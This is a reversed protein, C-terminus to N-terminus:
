TSEEPISGETGDKTKSRAVLLAMQLMHDSPHGSRLFDVLTLHDRPPGLVAAVKFSSDHLVYDSSYEGTEARLGTVREDEGMVEAYADRWAPPIGECGATLKETLTHADLGFDGCWIPHVEEDAISSVADMIGQQVSVAPIAIEDDSVTSDFEKAYVAPPKSSCVLLNPGRQRSSLEVCAAGDIAFNRKLQYKSRKWVVANGFCVVDSGPLMMTPSFFVAYNNRGLEMYIHALHNATPEDDCNFWAPDSESCRNSFGVSQLGQLFMVDPGHFLLQRVIRGQRHEWTLVNPILDGADIAELVSAAKPSESHSLDSSVSYSVVVVHGAPLNQLPQDASPGHTILTKVVENQPDPAEIFRLNPIYTLELSPHRRAWAGRPADPDRDARIRIPLNDGTQVAAALLAPVLEPVYRDLLKGIRPLARLEPLRFVPRHGSARLYGSPSPKRGPDRRKAEIIGMLVRNNQLNFPEFYFALLKRLVTADKEYPASRRLKWSPNRGPSRSRGVIRGPVEVSSDGNKERSRRRSGSRRLDEGDSTLPERPQVGMGSPTLSFYVSNSMADCVTDFRAKGGGKVAFRKLAQRVTPQELVWQVAVEGDTELMGKAHSEGDLLEEIVRCLFESPPRLKVISESVELVESTSLLEKESIELVESTSLVEKLWQAHADPVCQGSSAAVVGSFLQAVDPCAMLERITVQQNTADPEDSIQGSVYKECVRNLQEAPTLLRVTMLDTNATVSQSSSALVATCVISPNRFAMNGLFPFAHMLDLVAVSGDSRMCSSVQPSPNELIRSVAVSVREKFPTQSPRQCGMGAGAGQWQNWWGPPPVFQVPCQPAPTFIGSSDMTGLAFPYPGPQPQFADTEPAVERRMMKSGTVTVIKSEDVSAKLIRVQELTDDVDTLLSEIAKTKLLDLLSVSGSATVQVHAEAVLRIREEVSRLRIGTEAENTIIAPPPGSRPARGGGIHTAGCVKIADQLSNVLVEASPFESRLEPYADLLEEIHLFGEEDSKLTTESAARLHEEMKKVLAACEASEDHDPAVAM